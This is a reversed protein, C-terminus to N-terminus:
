TPRNRLRQAMAARDSAMGWLLDVYYGPGLAQKEQIARHHYYAAEAELQDARSGSFADKIVTDLVVVGDAEPLAGISILSVGSRDVGRQTYEPSTAM